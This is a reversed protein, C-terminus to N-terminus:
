AMKSILTTLLSLMTGMQEKLGKMMVKLEQIENTPLQPQQQYTTQQPTQPTATEYMYQHQQSKLTAAYSIDPKIQKRYTKRIKGTMNTEYPHSLERKYTKTSPADKTTPQITVM